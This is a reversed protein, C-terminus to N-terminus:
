KEDYLFIERQREKGNFKYFYRRLYRYFPLMYMFSFYIIIVIHIIKVHVLNSAQVKSNFKKINIIWPSSLTTTAFYHLYLTQM